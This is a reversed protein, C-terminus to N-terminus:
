ITSCADKSLRESADPMYIALPFPSVAAVLQQAQELPEKKSRKKKKKIGGAVSPDEGKFKLKGGTKSM